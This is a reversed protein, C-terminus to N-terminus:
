CSEFRSNHLRLDKLFLDLERPTLVKTQVFFQGIRQHRIKQELLIMKVRSPDLLGLSIAKEGFKGPLKASMVAFVDSATMWGWERAIFGLSGRGARQWSVAQLLERFTIVQRYYLYRGLQLARQPVAQPFPSKSAAPRYRQPAASQRKAGLPLQKERQSLFSSLTEYASKM